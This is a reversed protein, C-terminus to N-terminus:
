LGNKVDRDVKLSSKSFFCRKSRSWNESFRQLDKWSVHFHISESLCFSTLLRVDPLQALRGSCVNAAIVVFCKAVAPQFQLSCFPFGLFLSTCGPKVSKMLVTRAVSKKERWDMVKGMVYSMQSFICFPLLNLLSILPGGPQVIDAVSSSIIM